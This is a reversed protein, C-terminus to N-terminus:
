RRRPQLTEDAVGAEAVAVLAVEVGLGPGQDVVEAGLVGVLKEGKDVQQTSGPGVFSDRERLRSRVPAGGSESLGEAGIEIAQLAVPVAEHSADLRWELLVGRRGARGRFGATGLRFRARGGGAGFISPISLVPRDTLISQLM